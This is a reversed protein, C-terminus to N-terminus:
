ESENKLNLAALGELEKLAARLTADARALTEATEQRTPRRTEGLQPANAIQYGTWAIFKDMKGGDIQYQEQYFRHILDRTTKDPPIFPALDFPQVPLGSPVKSESRPLTAYPKGNKDVQPAASAANELGNAGPFKGYLGDFSWNEQYIIILHNIPDLSGAANAAPLLGVSGVALLAALVARRRWLLLPRM